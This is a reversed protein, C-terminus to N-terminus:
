VWFFFITTKPHKRQRLFNTLDRWIGRQEFFAADWLTEKEWQSIWEGCSIHCCSCSELLKHQIRLCCFSFIFIAVCTIELFWNLPQTYCRPFYILNSIYDLVLDSNTNSRHTSQLTGATSPVPQRSTHKRPSPTSYSGLILLPTGM